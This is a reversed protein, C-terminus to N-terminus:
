QWAGRLTDRNLALWQLAIISAANDIRGDNVAALAESLSWVHVRIDEGEEELGYVGGAGQSDCRGIYLHVREDSGGPSPYYQTVPWLASLSLNAEEEAERLAVQEPEEDKDILGAVLELLWPNRSKDYAGVRFQEILVVRDQQPDYPLVCVADHRVFLERSLEPGMGGAFQEHRLKLRDVRYFGKFCTEREVLEVQQPTNSNVTM